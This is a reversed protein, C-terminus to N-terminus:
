SGSPLAERLMRLANEGMIKRVDTPSFGENLLADTLWETGAADVVAPVAGDWDSGLALADVGVRDAAYRVAAAWAAPSAGCLAEPWLGIGVIGGTAAIAALRADDLNRVSDCTGKVGTHSVVV